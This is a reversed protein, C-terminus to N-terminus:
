TSTKIADAGQRELRMIFGDALAYLIPFTVVVEIPPNWEFLIANEVTMLHDRAYNMTSMMEDTWLDHKHLAKSIGDIWMRRMLIELRAVIKDDEWFDESNADPYRKLIEERARAHFPQLYTQIM